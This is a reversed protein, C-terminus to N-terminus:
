GFCHGSNSITQCICDDDSDVVLHVGFNSECKRLLAIMNQQLFGHSGSDIVTQADFSGYFICTNNKSDTMALGRGSNAELQQEVENM